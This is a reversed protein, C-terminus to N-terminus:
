HAQLAGAHWVIDPLPGPPLEDDFLQAADFSLPTTGAVKARFTLNILNRAGSANVGAVAGCRTAGVFIRGPQNADVQYLPTHGGVELLSGASWGEFSARAPDFLVVFAAGYVGATNAVDVAVTVADAATGGLTMVTAGTIAGPDAQEPVFGAVLSTGGDPIVSGSDGGGGCAAAMPLLVILAGVCGSRM